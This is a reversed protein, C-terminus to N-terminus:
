FFTLTETEHIDPLGLYGWLFICVETLSAGSERKLFAKTPVFASGEDERSFSSLSHPRISALPVPDDFVDDISSQKVLM